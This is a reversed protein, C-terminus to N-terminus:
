RLLVAKRTLVAEGARLVCFYVGSPLNAPRWTVSHDGAQRRGRFFREVERGSADYVRLDVTGGSPLYFRLVTSPNFPNPANQWFRVAPAARGAPTGAAVPLSDRYVYRNHASVNLEVSHVTDPFAGTFAVYARGTSDAVGRGYSIGNRYLSAVAGSEGTEIEVGAAERFIYAPHTVSLSDPTDTWGDLAPDGLMNLTYFCWRHAGSEYEDLLDIFPVTEDKSRQNAGGLTTFGERFIADMFERQFRHSPGNTTGETFWGYRSNGIFAAACHAISVMTEGICDTGSYAYIGRNDFSGAYCGYSYLLPFGASTGDNTFTVDTVDALSLRMAFSWNTHGAHAHWNTGANIASIVASKSWSGIDRDYYKQLTYGPPLGTTTFGHATCTGILQDLEDGGYTLPADYLKEGLLLARRVGVPVPSEQYSIVKGILHAAEWSDDVCARGVAVESYFDEEGAEGWLSDADGNWSGDLAAYYIDAPINGDSYVISSQVSGWLGRYPVIAGAEGPLGDADGGLLVHTVGRATYEGTIASRIKEQTDDGTYAGEIYEVTMIETRLGRRTYFDRLPLFSGSLSDRTIILYEYEGEPAAFPTRIDMYRELAEPNDAIAAIRADTAGGTRLLELARRSEASPSTEIVIEVERFYGLAGSAPHFGLPSFAGVAISHGRLYQTSFHPPPPHIWRNASYAAEDMIFRGTGKVKEQGPVPHQRPYLRHTGGIRTWGRRVMRSSSVSEGPLLLLKVGRFPFSPEGARGAQRTSAFVVRSFGDELREIGPESFRYIMRIEGAPLPVPTMTLIVAAFSLGAAMTKFFHM